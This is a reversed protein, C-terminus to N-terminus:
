KQLSGLQSYGPSLKSFSLAPISSLSEYISVLIQSGYYFFKKECFEIPIRPSLCILSIKPSNKVFRFDILMIIHWANPQGFIKNPNKQLM